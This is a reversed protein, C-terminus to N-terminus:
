LEPSEACAQLSGARGTKRERKFIIVPCSLPCIQYLLPMSVPGEQRWKQRVRIGNCVLYFRM